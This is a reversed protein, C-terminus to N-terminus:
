EGYMGRRRAKGERWRKWREVMDRACVRWDWESDFSSGSEGFEEAEVSEEDHVDTSGSDNESM